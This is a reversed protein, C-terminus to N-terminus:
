GDRPPNGDSAWICNKIWPKYEYRPSIPLVLLVNICNPSVLLCGEIIWRKRQFRLFNVVKKFNQSLILLHKTTQDDCSNPSDSLFLFIPRWFYRNAGHDYDISTGQFCYFFKSGIKWNRPPFIFFIKKGLCAIYPQYGLTEYHITLIGTKYHTTLIGSNWLSHKIDWNWLSHNIDWNWSQNIDWLKRIFIQQSSYIFVQIKLSCTHSIEAETDSYNKKTFSEVKGHRRNQRTKFKWIVLHWKFRFFVHRFWITSFILSCTM